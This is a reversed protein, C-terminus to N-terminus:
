GTGRPQVNLQERLVQEFAAGEQAGVIAFRGGLVFTPVAQVGIQRAWNIGEEVADRYRRDTLVQRLEEEPLGASVGVRVIEDLSGIESLDTFYAKFMAKHFETALGQEAAYEAAELSLLSNSTWTRGRTFTLGLSDARQEMATPPDGAQTMQRRPKGDPPTSPDLLYPAFQVNLDYKEQLREVEM